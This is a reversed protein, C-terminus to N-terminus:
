EYVCKEQIFLIVIMVTVSYYLLLWLNSGWEIQGDIALILKFTYNIGYNVENRQKLLTKPIYLLIETLVCNRYIVSDENHAM